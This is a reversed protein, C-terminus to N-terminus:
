YNGEVVDQLAEAFEVAKTTLFKVSHEEDWPFNEYCEPNSLMASLIMASHHSLRKENDM